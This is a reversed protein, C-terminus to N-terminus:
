GEEEKDAMTKVDICSTEPVNKRLAWKIRGDAHYPRWPMEGLTDM